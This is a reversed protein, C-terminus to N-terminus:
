FENWPRATAPNPEFEYRALVSRIHFYEELSLFPDPNLCLVTNCFEVASSSERLPKEYYIKVPVGAVKLEKVVRDRELHWLPYLYPGYDGHTYGTVEDWLCCIEKRITQWAPYHRLKVRLVAAQLEDCRANTGIMPPDSAHLLRGHDRMRRCEDAFDESNTLIAGADGLAGIAKTPFFSLTAAISSGPLLGFDALNHAQCSDRITAESDGHFVEYPLGYLDVLLRCPEPKYSYRLRGSYDVANKTAVFSVPSTAWRNRNYTREGEQDYVRLAIELATTGSSTLIVHRVGFAEGMEAECAVGQLGLIYQNSDIVHDIAKQLEDRISANQRDLLWFQESM